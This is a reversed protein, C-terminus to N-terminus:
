RSFVLMQNDPWVDYPTELRLVAACQRSPRVIETVRTPGEEDMWEIARAFDEDEVAVELERNGVLSM